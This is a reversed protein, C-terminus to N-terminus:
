RCLTAEPNPSKGSPTSASCAYPLTCGGMGMQKIQKSISIGSTFATRGNMGQISLKTDGIGILKIQPSTGRTSSRQYVCAKLPMARSVMSVHM